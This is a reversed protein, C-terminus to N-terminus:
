RVPMKISTEPSAYFNMYTYASGIAYMDQKTRRRHVKRGKKVGVTADTRLIQACGKEKPVGKPPSEIDTQRSPSRQLERLFILRGM